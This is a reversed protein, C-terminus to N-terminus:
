RTESRYRARLRTACLATGALLGLVELLELDATQLSVKHELLRYLAIAGTGQGDVLLPTCATLGDPGPEPGAVWLKGTAVCRGIPGAGPEILQLRGPPIGASAVPALTLPTGILEFVAVQECGILGSAIEEIATLVEGRDLTSHLRYAAVYLSALDAGRQRAEDLAQALRHREADAEALQRHVDQRKFTWEALDALLACLEVSLERPVSPTTALQELREFRSAIDM